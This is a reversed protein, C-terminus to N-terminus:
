FCQLHQVHQPTLLVGSTSPGTIVSRSQHMTNIYQDERRLQWLFIPVLGAMAVLKCLNQHGQKQSSSEQIRSGNYHCKGSYITQHNMNAGGLYLHSQYLNENGSHALFRLCCTLFVLRKCWKM